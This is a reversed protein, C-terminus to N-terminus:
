CSRWRTFGFIYVYKIDGNATLEHRLNSHLHIRTLPQLFYEVSVGFEKLQEGIYKDVLAPFKSRWPRRCRGRGSAPHLRLVRFSRALVGNARPGARVDNADLLAHRLRLPLRPARRPDGGDGHVRNPRQDGADKGDPRRRRLVQRRDGRHHRDLQRHVPRRGPNGRIMPFSFVEFISNDAYLIREEYFQRDEYRVPQKGMAMLRVADVVEPYEEVMTVAPLANTTAIANPTGGLTLNAGLRYINSANGHYRDYGLETVIYILIVICCAMGIALGSVNILSYTKRAIANKLAVKLYHGFM